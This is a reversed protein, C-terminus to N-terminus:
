IPLGAVSLPAEHVDEWTNMYVERIDGGWGVMEAAAEAPSGASVKLPTYEIVRRVSVFLGFGPRTTPM